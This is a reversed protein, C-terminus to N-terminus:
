FIPKRGDVVWLKANVFMSKLSEDSEEDIRKDILQLLKPKNQSFQWTLWMAQLAESDRGQKQKAIAIPFWLNSRKSNLPLASVALQESKEYQKAESYTFVLNAVIEEDLPDAERAQTFLAAAADYKKLALSELGDKNLQRAVKRVGREPKPMADITGAIELALSINEEKAAMLMLAVCAQATQCVSSPTGTNGKLEGKPPQQAQQTVESPLKQEAVPQPAVSAPPSSQASSQKKELGQSRQM